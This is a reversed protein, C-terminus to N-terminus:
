IWILHLHYSLIRSLVLTQWSSNPIPQGIKPDIICLLHKSKHCSKHVLQPTWTHSRLKHNQQNISFCTMTHNIHDHENISLLILGFFGTIWRTWFQVNLSLCCKIFSRSCLFYYILFAVLAEFSNYWAVIWCLLM